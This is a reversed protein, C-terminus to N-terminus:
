IIKVELGLTVDYNEKVKSKIFDAMEIVDRCTADGRNIIFNAHTRSVEAGGIRHGKLGLMDIMQGCTFQFNPPNKFVCGASPMDLVQKGKKMKLFQSMSAVLTHSDAKDLKLRAELIMYGDLNSFRYGFEIEDKKLMKVNGDQDMVKLSTVLDGMNKFIPNASGGANMYISGGVTGPIGVLSELGSLGKECTQRVLKPLSYGGGVTVIRGTIKLAKFFPASLNIMVGRFGSDSALVNSGNGMVFFPIKRDKVFSLIKKLEATSKPEVWVDAPGGIRFSTHKSLPENLKIRGKMFKKLAEIYDKDRSSIENIRMCLKDAVKKIDGAGMVVIMDGNRALAMVHQPIDDKAIIEVDRIGNSIVKDYITKISVNKIPKESAAYIDTLILKDAMDFCKGFDDALFKTRTYRHPQFVAILRKNKWNRCASLVAKIETPHHAYDDILMIGSADTRLQFRRKAGNFDKIANKIDEFKFGMDLGVLIASLANLVNHAGPINLDVTGLFKKKYVCGFSTNFGNMKIDRPYIDASSSMGFSASKGRFGSMIKKTIPDDINYFVTGDKRVNGVFSNFSRKIDNLGHYHDLHEAEINTIVAYFPKFYLFSSDSEDAEAVFYGSKGLSANGGFCDVEGGIVVTPDINLNKLMVSILSTTTTKGHTGTVAIGKKKNFLDALVEARHAIKIKRRRAEKLEPNNKSISSSYVLVDVDKLLNSSKHGEFISAGMSELAETLGNSEVDSGSVNYGMELLVHAIASM